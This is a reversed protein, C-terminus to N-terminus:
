FDSYAHDHIIDYTMTSGLDTGYHSEGLVLIKKGFRGGNRYNKGEWPTFHIKAM